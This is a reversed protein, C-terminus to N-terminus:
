PRSAVRQGNLLVQTGDENHFDFWGDPGPEGVVGWKRDYYNFMRDGKRFKTGDEAIYEHYFPM